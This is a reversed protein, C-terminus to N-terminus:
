AFRAAFIGPNRPCIKTNRSTLSGFFGLSAPRQHSGPWFSPSVAVTAGYATKMTWCDNVPGFSVQPIPRGHNRQIDAVDRMGLHQPPQIKHRWELAADRQMIDRQNRALRQEESMGLSASSVRRVLRGSARPRDVQHGHDADLLQALRLQDGDEWRGRRGFARGVGAKAILASSEARVVRIQLIVQRVHLFLRVQDIQGIEIRSQADEIDLFRTQRFFRPPKDRRSRGLSDPRQWRFKFRLGFVHERICAPVNVDRVLLPPKENQSVRSFALGPRRRLLGLPAVVCIRMVM